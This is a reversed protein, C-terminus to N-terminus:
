SVRMTRLTRLVLPVDMYVRDKLDSNLFATNPDLHELRCTYVACVSLVIWIPNM